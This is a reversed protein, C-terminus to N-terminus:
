ELVNPQFERVGAITSVRKVVSSALHAPGEDSATARTSWAQQEIMTSLTTANHLGYAVPRNRAGGTGTGSIMAAERGPPLIM